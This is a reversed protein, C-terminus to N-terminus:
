LILPRLYDNKARCKVIKMSYKINKIINIKIYIIFRVDM